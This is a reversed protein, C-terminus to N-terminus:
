LDGLIQEIHGKVTVNPYIKQIKGNSDIVFTARQISIIEKGFMNKPKLVGYKQCVQGQDDVLLSFNLGYKNVFRQHLDESDRSVGLIVTKKNKFQKMNDKFDCAEITCGPTLDKPYFYLIVTQGQFDKLSVKQGTQDKLSFSPATDGEKLSVEKEGMRTSGKQVILIKSM